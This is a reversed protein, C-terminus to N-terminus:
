AARLSRDSEMSGSARLLAELYEYRFREDPELYAGEAWENWANLFIFDEPLDRKNISEVLRSMWYEFKVPSAGRLITAREQYRATNDWDVFAGPFTTINKEQHFEMVHKWVEDYDYITLRNMSRSKLSSWSKKLFAPIARKILPSCNRYLGLARRILPRSNRYISEFPQFQFVADFRDLCDSNVFEYQKQAIFYLGKLGSKVAEDQWFDLMENINPIYHPRYIIFIPRGDVKIAREDSWVKILYDFHRKWSKRKPPHKQQILIDHDQGDWRRSWTENAWSLCFPFNIDKNELMLNTPTDLLQKGDFWYHYHCFGYVGYKAALEVQNRVTELQSQDYYNSDLPVRPQYHSEYAPQGKKVNIWDTFGKGWWEDNEKIAHFQPFYMAILKPPM